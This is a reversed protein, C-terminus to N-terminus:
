EDEDDDFEDEEDDDLDELDEAEDDFDDDYEQADEDVDEEDLAVTLPDLTVVTFAEDCQDCVLADGEELEDIEVECPAECAPCNVVVPAQKM